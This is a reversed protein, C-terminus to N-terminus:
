DDWSGKLILNDQANILTSIKVKVGSEAVMHVKITKELNTIEEIESIISDCIYPLITIANNFSGLNNDMQRAAPDLRWEDDVIYKYQYTGPHLNLEIYFFNSYNKSQKM